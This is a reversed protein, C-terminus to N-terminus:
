FLPASNIGRIIGELDIWLNEQIWEKDQQYHFQKDIRREQEQLEFLESETLGQPYIVTTNATGKIYFDPDKTENKICIKEVHFLGMADNCITPLVTDAVVHKISAKPIELTVEEDLITAQAIEDQAYCNGNISLFVILLFASIIGPLYILSKM